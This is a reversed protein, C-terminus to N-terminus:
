MFNGIKNSSFILCYPLRKIVDLLFYIKSIRQMEYRVTITWAIPRRRPSKKSTRLLVIKALIDLLVAITVAPLIDPLFSLALICFPSMLVQTPHYQTRPIKITQFHRTLTLGVINSLLTSFYLGTQRCRISPLLIVQTLCRVTISIRLHLPQIVCPLCTILLHLPLLPHLFEM